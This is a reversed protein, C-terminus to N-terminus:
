IGTKWFFFVAFGIGTAIGGGERMRWADVQAV